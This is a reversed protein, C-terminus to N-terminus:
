HASRAVAELDIIEPEEPESESAPVVVPAAVLLPLLEAGTV